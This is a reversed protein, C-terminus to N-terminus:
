GRAAEKVLAGCTRGAPARDLRQPTQTQGLRLPTRPQRRQTARGAESILEQPGYSPVARSPAAHVVETDRRSGNRADRWAESIAFISPGYTRGRFSRVNCLAVQAHTATTYVHDPDSLIYARTCVCANLCAVTTGPVAERTRM